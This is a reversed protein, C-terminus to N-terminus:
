SCCYNWIVKMFLSVISYRKLGKIPIIFCCLPLIIREVIWCQCVSTFNMLCCFLIVCDEDLVVGVSNWWLLVWSACCWLKIEWLVRAALIHSTTHCVSLVLINIIPKAPIASEAFEPECLLLVWNLARADWRHLIWDVNCFLIRLHRFNTLKSHPWTSM